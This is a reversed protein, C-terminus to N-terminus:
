TSIVIINVIVSKRQRGCKKEGQKRILLVKKKSQKGRKGAQPEARGGRELSNKSKGM